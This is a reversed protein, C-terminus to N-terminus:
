VLSELVQGTELDKVEFGHEKIQDRIQDSVEWNKLGVAVGAAPSQSSGDELM